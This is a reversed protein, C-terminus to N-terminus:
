LKGMDKLKQQAKKRFEFGTDPILDIVQRFKGAAAASDLKDKLLTYGAWYLSEAAQRDLSSAIQASVVPGQSTAASVTQAAPKGQGSGHAQQNSTGRKPRMTSLDPQPRSKAARAADLSALARSVEDDRPSLEAARRFVTEADAFKAADSFRYGKALLTRTKEQQVITDNGTQLLSDLLAIAQDFM